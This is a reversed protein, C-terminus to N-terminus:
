GLTGDPYRARADASQRRRSRIARREEATTGGWVGCDQGTEVAYSLCERRVQCGACIAKAQAIQELAPGTSGVPFFLDPDQDRCAGQPAWDVAGLLATVSVSM